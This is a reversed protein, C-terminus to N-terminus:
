RSALAEDKYSELVKRGFCILIELKSAEIAYWYCIDTRIRRRQHWKGYDEECCSYAIYDYQECEQDVRLIKELQIKRNSTRTYIWFYKGVNDKTIKYIKNM